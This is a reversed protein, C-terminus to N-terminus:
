VVPLEAPPGGKKAEVQPVMPAEVVITPFHWVTALEEANLIAGKEWFSRMRCLRLIIKQKLTLRQDALFYYAKTTYQPYPKFGNMNLAAFQNFFGFAGAVTPRSFIDKKAMYIFQIKFEFAKKSIKREIAEVVEKEGPSMFQMMSPYKSEEKTAAGLPEVTGYVMETIVARLADLWGFVEGLFFGQKAPAARGILKAVTQKGEEVWSDPAPRVYIQMWARQGPGFKSLFEMFNAVPDVFPQKPLLDVFDVYTRIPYPNPRALGLMAGWLDWDKGLVGPLLDDVYDKAEYIEAKPWEAYIKSEIFNRHVAPMRLLFRIQGDIGVIEINMYHQCAGLFYKEFKTSVTGMLAYIGAFFAEAIRPSQEIEKPPKVELLVWKINMWWKRQIYYMWSGFFIIFLFIPLWVWWLSLLAKGIEIVLNPFVLMDMFINYCFLLFFGM